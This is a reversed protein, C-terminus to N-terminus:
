NNIKDGRYTPSHFDIVLILFCSSIVVVLLKEWDRHIGHKAQNLKAFDGNLRRSTFYFRLASISFLGFGAIQVSVGVLGLDRGLSVKQKANSDTPNTGSILVAAVLQLALSIVDCGVFILTIFRPPVWLFRLTRSEPPVVWFVIRGFIVYIVGTMLVPALIILTFQIVYPKKQTIDSASLVRAVYGAVEMGIGLLMITWVWARKRIIQYLTVCFSVGYLGAVIGALPESPAYVYYSKPVEM